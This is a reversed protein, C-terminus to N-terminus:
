CRKQSHFRNHGQQEHSSEVELGSIFNGFQKLYREADQRLRAADGQYEKWVERDIPAYNALGRGPFEIERFNNMRMIVSNISRGITRATEQLKSNKISPVVGAKYLYLVIVREEKSWRSRFKDPSLKM